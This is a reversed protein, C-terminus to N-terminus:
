TGRSNLFNLTRKRRSDLDRKGVKGSLIPSELLAALGGSRKRKKLSATSPKLTQIGGRGPSINYWHHTRKLTTDSQRM